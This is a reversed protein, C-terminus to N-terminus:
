SIRTDFFKPEGDWVQFFTGNEEGKKHIKNDKDIVM